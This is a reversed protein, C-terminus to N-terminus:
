EVGVRMEARADGAQDWAPAGTEWEEWDRRRKKGEGHRSRRPAEDESESDEDELYGKSGHASPDSADQGYFEAQNSSESSRRQLGPSPNKGSAIARDGTKPKKMPRMDESNRHGRNKGGGGPYPPPFPMGMPRNPRMMPGNLGPMYYSGGPVPNMVLGPPPPGMRPPPGMMKPGGPPFMGAGPHPRGPFYVPGPMPGVGDMPGFGPGGNDPGLFPRPPGGFIDAPPMGPGDGMGMWNMRFGDVAMDPHPRFGMPRPGGLNRAREMVDLGPGNPPWMQNGRMPPRGRGHGPGGALSSVDDDESDNEEPVDDNDEFPVINPDELEENTNAGGSLKEEETKKEFKKAIAQM